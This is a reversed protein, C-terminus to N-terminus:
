ITSTSKIPYFLYYIKRIIGVCVLFASVISAIAEVVLTLQDNSWGWHMMQSFVLLSPIIAILAGKVTLSVKEPNASSTVIWNILASELKKITTYM